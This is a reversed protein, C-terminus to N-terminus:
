ISKQKQARFRTGKVFKGEFDLFGALKANAPQRM